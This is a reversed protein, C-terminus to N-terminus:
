KGTKVENNLKDRISTNSGCTDFIFITERSLCDAKVNMCSIATQTQLSSLKNYLLTKEILNVVVFLGTKFFRDTQLFNEYSFNDKPQFM